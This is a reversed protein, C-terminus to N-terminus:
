SKGPLNHVLFWNFNSRCTKCAPTPVETDPECFMHLMALKLVSIIKGNYKTSSNLQFNVQMALKLISKIKGTFKTSFILYFTVQMKQMSSHPGGNRARLVQTVERTETYKKNEWYIKSKFWNFNSRCRISLIIKIKLTFKTIFILRFTVQMNQLSSHSGSNRARM